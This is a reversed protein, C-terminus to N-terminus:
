TLIKYESYIGDEALINSLKVVYTFKDDGGVIIGLPVNANDLVLAGSDGRHSPASVPRGQRDLRSISFVDTLVRKVGDPYLIGETMNVSHNYIKAEQLGESGAGNFKVGCTRADNRTVTRWHKKFDNSAPGNTLVAFGVDMNTAFCGDVVRGIAKEQGDMVTEPGSNVNWNQDGKIVHWCSLLYVGASGDKSLYCGLSGIGNVLAQNMIKEGRTLAHVAAGTTIVIDLPFNKHEDGLLRKVTDRTIRDKVHIEIADSLRNATIALGEHVSLVGMENALRSRASLVALEFPTAVPVVVAENKAVNVLPQDALTTREPTEKKEEPKVGATRIAVVKGLLDFWFPAGLSLALATIFFGLLRTKDEGIRGLVYWLKEGATYNVTGSIRVQHPSDAGERAVVDIAAFEEQSLANVSDTLQRYSHLTSLGLSDLSLQVILMRVSDSVANRKQRIAISDKGAGGLIINFQQLRFKMAALEQQRTLLSRALMQHKDAESRYAELQRFAGPQESSDVVVTYRKHLANLGWGAGILINAQSMDESIHALGSDVIANSLVSDKNGNVFYSYRATDRAAAVSLNVLQTRADRDKSLTKAIRISDVNFIMAIILGLVISIRTLFRKYWGSAQDNAEVFWKRLQDGFANVDGGADKAMARINTLTEQQFHLTNNQLAFDIRDMDTRGQGKSRLLHIMTIAFTDSTIYSPKGNRFSMAHTKKNKSLYKISPSAYFRGAVSYKFDNREYLFLAALWNRFKEWRTAGQDYYGDNLMREICVRLMRQRFGLRAALMEGLITVFLSYLLYVFILGIVVNIAVNDFM